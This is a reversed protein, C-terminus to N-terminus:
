LRKWTEFTFPHPSDPDNSHQSEAVLRWESWNVRPFRVDGDIDAHVRTLYLTSAQPLFLRYIEAGGIVMIEDSDGAAELAAEPTHVVICGEARYDQDRTLVINTRGPLARGISEHNRRGMIMPKGMTMAKFHRLDAPIRWPLDNDRGIIGDPTMAVILSITPAKTM